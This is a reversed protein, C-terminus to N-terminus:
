QGKREKEIRTLFKRIVGLGARIDAIESKHLDADVEQPNTENIVFVLSNIDIALNEMVRRAAATKRLKKPLEQLSASEPEAPPNAKAKCKRAVNARSLKGEARAESIAERFQEDTVGDTMAYVENTEAGGSFFESPSVTKKQPVADRNVKVLRGNRM